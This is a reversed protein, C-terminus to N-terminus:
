IKTFSCLSKSQKCLISHTMRFLKLARNDVDESEGLSMKVQSNLLPILIDSLNREVCEELLDIYRILSDGSVVSLASINEIEDKLSSINEIDIEIAIENLSDLFSQWSKNKM